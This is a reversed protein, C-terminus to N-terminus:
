THVARPIVRRATCCRSCCTTGEVTLALMDPTTDLPDLVVSRRDSVFCHQERSGVLGNWRKSSSLPESCRPAPWSLVFSSNGVLVSVADNEPCLRILPVVPPLPPLFRVCPSEDIPSYAAFRFRHSMRFPVYAPRRKDVPDVEVAGLTGEPDKICCSSGVSTSM